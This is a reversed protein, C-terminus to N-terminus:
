SQSNVLPQYKLARVDHGLSQAVTALVFTAKRDSLKTRDLVAALSPIMINVRARKKCSAATTHGGVAGEDDESNSRTRSSFKCEDDSSSISGLRVLENAAEEHQDARLKRNV